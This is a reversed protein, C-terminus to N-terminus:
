AFAQDDVHADIQTFAVGEQLSRPTTFVSSPFGASKSDYNYTNNVKTAGLSAYM